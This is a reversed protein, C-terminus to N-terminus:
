HKGKGIIHIWSVGVPMESTVGKRVYVNYDTDVAWVNTNADNM